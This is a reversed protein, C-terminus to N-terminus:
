RWDAIERMEGGVVLFHDLLPVDLEHSLQALRRTAQIDARSPAPDDSPQNHVLVFGAAGLARARDILKWCPVPCSGIDGREVLDVALLELEDDVFLALLSEDARSGLSAVFAHVASRGRAFSWPRFLADARFDGSSPGTDVHNLSRGRAFTASTLIWAGEVPRRM